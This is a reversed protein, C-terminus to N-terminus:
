RLRAEVFVQLVVRQQYPASADWGHPRQTGGAGLMLDSGLRLPIGLDLDLRPGLGLAGVLHGGNYACQGLRTSCSSTPGAWGVEGTAALHIRSEEGLRLLYGVWLLGLNLGSGRGESGRIALGALGELGLELQSLASGEFRIGLGGGASVATGALLSRVQTALRPALALRGASAQAAPISAQENLGPPAGALPAAAVSAALILSSFSLPM